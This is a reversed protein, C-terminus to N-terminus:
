RCLTRWRYHVGAGVVRRFCECASGDRPLYRHGARVLSGRGTAAVAYLPHVDDGRPSDGRSLQQFLPLSQPSMAKTRSITRLRAVNCSSFMARRWCTATRFRSLGRGHSRGSSRTNQSKRERRHGRQFSARTMTLGSVTMPQCRWPNLRNHFHFDQCPFGPRGRVELSIRSSMRRILRSFGNHPAGRMWPSSNFSPMSTECAVTVLYMTRCGFGGDCVQRVNRSLWTPQRTEISKKTTGVAVNATKNTNM